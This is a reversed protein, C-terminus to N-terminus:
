QASHLSITSANTKFVLENLLNLENQKLVSAIENVHMFTTLPIFELKRIAYQESVVDFYHNAKNVVASLNEIDKSLLLLNDVEKQIHSVNIHLSDQVTNFRNLVDMRNKIDADFCADMEENPNSNRCSSVIVLCFLVFLLPM